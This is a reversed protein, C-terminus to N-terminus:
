PNGLTQTHQIEDQSFIEELDELNIILGNPLLKIMSLIEKKNRMNCRLSM